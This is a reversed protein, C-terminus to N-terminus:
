VRKTWQAQALVATYPSERERGRERRTRTRVHTHTQILSHEVMLPCDSLLGINSKNFVPVVLRASIIEM